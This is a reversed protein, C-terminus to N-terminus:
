ASGPVRATTSRQEFPRVSYRVGMFAGDATADCAIYEGDGTKRYTGVGGTRATVQGKPANPGAHPIEVDAPRYKAYKTLLKDFQEGTDKNPVPQLDWHYDIRPRKANSNAVAKVREVNITLSSEARQRIVEPVTKIVDVKISGVSTKTAMAHPAALTGWDFGDSQGNGARTAELEPGNGDPTPTVTGDATTQAKSSRPAM